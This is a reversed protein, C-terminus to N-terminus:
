PGDGQNIWATIRGIRNFPGRMHFGGAVVDPRDDGNLDGCAVTVFHTPFDDIQWPSFNQTGDNELWVISARGPRRFDNAMSVLVVDEYGSGNLDGVAAAYTGGFESLRRQEFNWDGRNEFWYCGHYPMPYPDLDELNDGAPLILDVKGDQNLDSAILGASGLDFNFTRWLRRARFAGEGLNQFAWLEEEDQTVIAAIDPRQDGDFDAIPVHIVGPMSLLQHERFAFEGRNELWWVGGRNYGFVAVAIDLNGDGNLDAVQADAVRRVNDLVTHTIFGDPTNELVVVKGIVGDDPELNGLVAVVLDTRGDGNLDTATAHAPAALNDALIEEDWGGKGDSRYLLVQNMLGDCALIDSRGDADFDVIQVNTILPLGVPEPGITIREFKVTPSPDYARGGPKLEPLPGVAPLKPWVYFTAGPLLLALGLLFAIGWLSPRESKAPELERDAENEM